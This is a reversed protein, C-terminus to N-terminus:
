RLQLGVSDTLGTFRKSGLGAKPAGEPWISLNIGVDDLTRDVDFTLATYWRPWRRVYIVQSSFNRGEDIDYIERFALTHKENLKYNAGFTFLNDDTDNIFRWGAFYALRPEREVAISVSSTGMQNRDVDYVGDYVVVTSDSIRYQFNAAIFSSSISDEPRASIFDGHTRNTRRINNLVEVFRRFRKENNLLDLDGHIRESRTADNFFGAELDFTIWDVSRRRGPEGRKTQLRQRLGLSLGGFDDIDEVGSDFPTVDNPSRNAHANWAVFDAKVVHRLRHLDLLASEVEDFVRSFVANGRLGYAGFVRGRGGGGEKDPTDDWATARGTLFPSLKVPGLDPLLFRLEERTDGRLVSGTEGTNDRRNQGNIFRRDDPRFRVVGARSDSYLTVYDGLPEGLLNFRLDPLHETETQFENIRFNTLASFQWNDKRKLLYALTEQDKGNEFENREFSELYQDDSIYSTELTM